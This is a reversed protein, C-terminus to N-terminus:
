SAAYTLVIRGIANGASLLDLAANVEDLRFRHQVISRLRTEAVLRLANVLDQRRGARTGIIELENQALYKGAVAFQDPTYGVVLMRGGRQLSQLSLNLTTETGVIDIACAVGAGETLHMVQQRWDTDDQAAIFVRAGNAMAWAERRADRDVAIVDAGSLRAIQIAASGVGGVGVILVTEGLRLHARDVAHLATLVADCCVAADEWSVNEPIRLLQQAPVRVFEAYGGHVRLVGMVGAMNPCLQERYTMCYVCRGCNLFNYVAVRDGPRFDTVSQGVNEVVGAIEHGMVFPLEPTYGFGDRLKLDTGDVGCAMVRVIVDDDGPVPVPMAELTLPQGFQRLVAAKMKM